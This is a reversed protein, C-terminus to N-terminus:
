TAVEKSRLFSSVISEESIEKGRLERIIRGRSFVIVRDCLGALELADSSNVVCAVGQQARARIARYIDFRANADVGQTPEDILLVNASHLFTRSIVAKQQNGGSLGSIPQDLNSAVINLRSFLDRTAEREKPASVIGGSSFDGLVQVTMNERVGLA